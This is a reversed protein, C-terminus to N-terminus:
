FFFLFYFHSKERYIIRDVMFVYNTLPIEKGTRFLELLDYFQGHIDGCITAPARVPQVNAEEVLITKVMNCLRKLDNEPICQGKELTEIWQDLM